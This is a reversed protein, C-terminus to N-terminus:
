KDTPKKNSRSTGVKKTTVNIKEEEKNDENGIFDNIDWTEKKEEFSISVETKEGPMPDEAGSWCKECVSTVTGLNPDFTSVKCDICVPRGCEICNDIDTSFVEKKCRDCTIKNVEVPMAKIPEIKNSLNSFDPYGASNNLLLTDGMSHQPPIFGSNITPKDYSTVSQIKNNESATKYLKCDNIQIGIHLNDMMYSFHKCVIKHVCKLCQM